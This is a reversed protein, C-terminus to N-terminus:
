DMEVMREQSQSLFLAVSDELSIFIVIDTFDAGRRKVFHVEPSRRQRRRFYVISDVSDIFGYDRFSHAEARTGAVHTQDDQRDWLAYVNLHRRWSTFRRGEKRRYHMGSFWSNVLFGKRSLSNKILADILRWRLIKFGLENVEDASLLVSIFGRAAFCLCSSVCYMEALPVTEKMTIVPHRVGSTTGGAEILNKTMIVHVLLEQVQLVSVDVIHEVVDRYIRDQLQLFLVEM